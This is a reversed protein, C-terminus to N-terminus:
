GNGNDDGFSSSFLNKPSVVCRINSGDKIPSSDAVNVWANLFKVSPRKFTVISNNLKERLTTSKLKLQELVLDADSKAEKSVIDVEYVDNKDNGFSEIEVLIEKRIASCAM